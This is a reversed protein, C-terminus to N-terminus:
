VNQLIRLNVLLTEVFVWFENPAMYSCFELKEHQGVGTDLLM